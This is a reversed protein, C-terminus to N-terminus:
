SSSTRGIVKQSHGTTAIPAPLRDGKQKTGYGIFQIEDESESDSIIIYESKGM